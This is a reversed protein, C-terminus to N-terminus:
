KLYAHARVNYIMHKWDEGFQEAIMKHAYDVFLTPTYFQGKNRRESNSM